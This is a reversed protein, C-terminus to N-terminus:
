SALWHTVRKALEAQHNTFSHDAGPVIGYALDPRQEKLIRVVRKVSGWAHEDKGGYLVMTPKTLSQYHRFLPKKSLKLKKIVELFPFVNYDGDPNAIDYFGQYSFITDPLLEKIIEGGKRQKIKEKSQRLLRWFRRTGLEDYYIGTDDGGGLLVYKSVKNRPKYYHYVCIKNAGTSEGVLYFTRFGQKRLFGIAGDIDPICDKIKEYAMGFRKKITRGQKVVNLRKVYHAGRNNFLMLSIGKRSLANVLEDQRDDYYFVSSSGNGHLHIAVERSRKAKYLLGPLTLGDATKMQVLVPKLM